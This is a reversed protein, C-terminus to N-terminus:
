EPCATNYTALFEILDASGIVGNGDADFPCSDQCDFECTGDDASASSDYNLASAYTCGEVEDVCSGDDVTAFSNYNAASEDLCGEWICSGNEYTVAADYNSANSYSCGGLICSGDDVNAAPDYNDAGQNTCGLFECSGDDDTALPNYNSATQDQCGPVELEDCVEDGDSDNICDGNCDYYLEPYQCSGDNTNAEEDFNCATADTCGPFECSGDDDTAASNFNAAGSDTCGPVEEEDCIGDGDADNECVGFCDRYPEAYFCSGDNAEAEPDFNCATVDTCGQVVIPFELVAGLVQPNTGNEARYQMNVELNVVGDTTLQAILVQGNEDPFALPEMDPLVFWSGGLANDIAFDGGSEFTAAAADVGLTTLNLADDEGGITFWSDYAVNPDVMLALATIENAFPGGFENQYFSTTTTISMPNGEQAFVATLQDDPNDFNAYVRYTRMGAVPLDEAILEYSLGTYSPEPFECSGDDFTADPDYNDATPDTCGLGNPMEPFTLQMGEAQFTVFDFDRIQINWTVSVSGDSTIQGLLVKGDVPIAQASVGPVLYMSGGNFTNVNLADTANFDILFDEMGLNASNDAEGPQAGLALWTDFELSPVFQFFASNIDGAFDGGTEDQYIDGTSNITWPATDLGYSAVVELDANAFNAYVRYTTYGTIGDEAYVEYSLGEILGGAWFCSGNDTTADPNFNDANQSTCGFVEDEDCTGNGNLDNLCNGDCDFGIEAYTCSGDDETAQANYNCAMEDNCGPNFLVGECGCSETYTDNVTLPNGDDCPDSAFYCVEPVNAGPVYNCAVPDDCGMVIPEGECGCDSAYVDNTTEPNGDDCPDAVFSCAGSVNAAPDYNCAGSDLCGEVILTGVCECNESVLDDMTGEDGDDCSTGVVLCSGDDLEATSSYNCAAVDMCGPELVPWTMEIGEENYTVGAEDMYQLNWVLTMIGTTTLQALLVKQDDGAVADASSGPVVYWSAGNQNNVIFGNGTNFGALFPDFGLQSVQGSGNSNASGITVWSDFALSPVFQFFAENIAQGLFAGSADQYFNTTTMIQLPASLSSSEEGYVAILEDTSNDFNAYFRYTTGFESTATTEVSVSTFSASASMASLCLVAVLLNIRMTNMTFQDFM